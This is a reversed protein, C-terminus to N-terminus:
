LYKIVEAFLNNAEVWFKINKQNVKKLYPLEAIVPIGTYSTIIEPNDKCIFENENDTPQLNNMIIGAPTIGANKLAAVTLLTDNICGLRNATVILTKYNILPILDLFTQKHNIPVMLGGAGEVIIYDNDKELSHLDTAIKDLSISDNALEAALHPSCAPTYAYSYNKKLASCDGFCIRSIFDLDPLKFEKKNETLTKTECGTQIPKFATAKFGKNLLSKLICTTVITKGIDTGCGTIFIGRM